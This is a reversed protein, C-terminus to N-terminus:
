GRGSDFRSIDTGEWTAVHCLFLGALPVNLVHQASLMSLLRLELAM